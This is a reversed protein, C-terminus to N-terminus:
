MRDLTPIGLLSLGLKLVKATLAALKLRSLEQEHNLIPCNEYFSSFLGALEYLYTCLLHPTSKQIIQDIVDPFLLLQKALDTEYSSSLEFQAHVEELVRNAKAFISQIRTYAYLL